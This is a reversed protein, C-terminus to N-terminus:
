AGGGPTGHRITKLKEELEFEFKPDNADDHCSGCIQLIVCSDCKDALRLITGRREAGPAVHRGGPGHCSECGVSALGDGGAPWGTKDGFGTTHCKQCDANQHQHQARLREFAGAHASGSWQKHEHAHCQECAKPGVYDAPQFLTRQRRDRKKVLELRQELSLGDDARNAAHSVLPLREAFSFHLSHQETHCGACAGQFGTKVAFDPSQHPGGRGHCNECQVGELWSAPRELSYGGPQNWGVTHCPLCEPDRDAGHEVLTEFAFAHTTLAWSAHQERHCARCFEEGSYGDRDLLIPNPVGLAARMELTLLAQLRPEAGVHRATIRGARDIVLMDPVAVRHEFAELTKRQSDMYVPFELGLDEVMQEVVYKQESASIPVFVLDPHANQALFKKFFRLMDHCHPCTPLFFMLVRVKGELASSELREGGLRVVSFAPARPALGLESVLEGPPRLHLLRRLESEYLADLERNSDLGSFGGILLGKADVVMLQTAGAEFRLKRAISLDADVVLPFDFDHVRGAREAQAADVGVAVGMLAVNADSAETAISAILAAVRALDESGPSFVVLLARRGLLQDSGGRGGGVLPGEFRPLAAARASSEGGAPRATIAALGALLAIGVSVGALAARRSRPIRIPPTAPDIL